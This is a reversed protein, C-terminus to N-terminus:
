VERERSAKVDVSVSTKCLPCKIALYDGDRQDSEYTAESRLFRFVTGCYKCRARHKNEGPLKGMVLIEAM